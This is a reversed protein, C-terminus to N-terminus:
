FDKLKMSKWKPFYKNIPVAYKNDASNRSEGCDTPMIFIKGNKKRLRLFVINKNRIINGNEWSLKHWKLYNLLLHECNVFILLKNDQRPLLNFQDLLKNMLKPPGIAFRDHITRGDINPYYQQKHYFEKKDTPPNGGRENHFDPM